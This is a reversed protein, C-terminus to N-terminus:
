CTWPRTSRRRRLQRRLGPRGQQRRDCRDGRAAGAEQGDGVQGALRDLVEQYDDSDETYTGFKTHGSGRTFYAAKPHVGPLTRYTIGDGDKDVFRYFKELKLIEEKSLM